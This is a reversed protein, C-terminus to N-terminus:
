KNIHLALSYGKEKTAFEDSIGFGVVAALVDDVFILPVRKRQWPPINWEQFLKKLEHHNNRGPLQFIEGGKRFRVSINKIDYRLGHGHAPTAHLWGLNPLYLPETLDWDYEKEPTHKTLCSMAYLDDRYRRLEIGSWSFHPAKDERAHLMDQQIQQLKIASPIPFHLQKFWARLTNRQRAPTLTLLKSISIIHNQSLVAALDQQAIEDLIEQAQACNEAVRSLTKAVSPWRKELIPLVDHRLFNRTFQTDLNSEDNIWNLHHTDAYKKLETRTVNLLPRAHCGKAFSKMQPM